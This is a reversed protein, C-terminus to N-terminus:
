LIAWKNSIYDVVVVGEYQALAVTTAGDITDATGTTDATLTVVGTNVNKVSYQAGSGTAPPLTIAFATTSNGIIVQDAATIVYTTTKVAVVGGPIGWVWATGTWTGLQKTDTAYAVAGADLGTLADIVAKTAPYLVTPIGPPYYNKKAM